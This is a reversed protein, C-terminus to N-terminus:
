RGLVFYKILVWLALVVVTLFPIGIVAAGVYIAPRVWKKELVSGAAGESAASGDQRTEPLSQETATTM